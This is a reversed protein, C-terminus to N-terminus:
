IDELQNIAPCYSGHKLGAEVVAKYSLSGVRGSIILQRSYKVWYFM